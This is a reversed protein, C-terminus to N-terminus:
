PGMKLSVGCFARWPCAPCAERNPPFPGTVGERAMARVAGEVREPQISGAPVPVEGNTRLFLLSLDLARGPFLRLLVTGYFALQATGLGDMSGPAALKYDRVHLTGNEEWLADLVGAMVPGGEIPLRFPWERKLIGQRHATALDKGAPTELFAGLIARLAARDGDRRAPARLEPPLRLLARDTPGELVGPLLTDLSEPSFDWQAM